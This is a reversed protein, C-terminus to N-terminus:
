FSREVKLPANDSSSNDPLWNAIANAFDQGANLSSQMQNGIKKLNASIESDIWSTRVENEVENLEKQREFFIDKVEYWVFGSNGISIPDTEVGQATSFAQSLLKATQPLGEVVKGDVDKGTVDIKDLIRAKLQVKAAAESLNDGAAREDELRDHIEFLEESAKALALRDRIEAEIDALPQVSQPVINTVRLLVPGFIGEIIQSVQNLELEFAANAVNVDPLDGKTYEGIDIDSQSRGLEAVITEFFEGQQLRKLIEEGQATDDLKLQQIARKEKTSFQFKRAEYEDKIEQDSISSPDSIDQAELKVMLIKRYEPAMYVIKTKNYHAKINDTTPSPQSKLLDTNLTVYEFVRKENLYNEYADIYAQPTATNASVGELLQNRIAVSQRNNVYDAESMGIQRLQQSLVRRDFNGSADRFAADDGILLALNRDSLGLGMKRGSEDLLAGSLLQSIVSSDIGFARIEERSLLRGFQRSLSYRAREYAFVYDNASVNTKGVEIVTDSNSGVIAGSVGWVGFSAVLLLIFIKAVWTGVSQRLLTLM